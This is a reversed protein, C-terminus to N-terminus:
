WTGATLESLPNQCSAVYRGAAATDTNHPEGLALWVWQRVGPIKGNRQTNGTNEQWAAEVEKGVPLLASTEWDEGRRHGAM